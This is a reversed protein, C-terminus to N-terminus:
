IHCNNILFFPFADPKQLSGVPSLQSIDFYCNTELHEVIPGSPEYGAIRMVLPIM